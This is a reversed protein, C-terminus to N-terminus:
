LTHRDLRVSFLAAFNISLSIFLCFDGTGLLPDYFMGTETPKRADRGADLKTDHSVSAARLGARKM